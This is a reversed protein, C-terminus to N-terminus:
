FERSFQMVFQRGRPNATGIEYGVWTDSLPPETDFVNNVGFRVTTDRLLAGAEAGFRYSMHLNHMTFPKVRLYYRTIGGVDLVKISSPRGLAEYVAETTSGGTRAFEGYYSTHWGASWSGRLWTFTLNSRWKPYGNRELQSSRFGEEDEEEFRLYRSAEARLLFQGIDLHPLRYQLGIDYGELNRGGLNVYDNIMSVFDGVPARRTADTPQEANYAAFAARDEDTVPARTIKSSGKYSGTSSGLDIQDIPTGAALAEQTALDLLLEDHELIDDIGVSSIVSRQRLNWYDFTLSLGRVRPVDLVFGSVWSKATEPQLDENGQRYEVRPRNIDALEGTVTARYPDEANNVRKTPTISTEVLNPARFSENYSGRLKLWTFPNWVVSAKPTASSGHISFHEVRGALTLELHEVLPLRNERTVFPFSLETYAAYIFQDASRPANPSHAVFDDDGERLYPLNEGGPPVLPSDRDLYTEWRAEVGAAIGIPGGQFLRGLSGDVKLDWVGLETRAFREFVDYIGEVVWEPNQYIDDVVILDNEIRFTVPFPNYASADTRNLAQRLWSERMKYYEHEHTQAYSYMLGSEWRWNENLTGRLGALARIMHTDVKIVRAKTGLPRVGSIFTVDAPTGVLRPTGDENPEGTPHYFRVGFPNWPNDAPVYLGPENVNQMNEPERWATSHSGFYMIDGFLELRDTIRQNLFAAANVRDTSPVISRDEALNYYFLGESNAVEINKSPASRKFNIRDDETPYFFFTGDAAMTAVGVPPSSSTSIGRNDDPRGTDTFTLWDTEDIFGRQFQGYQTTAAGNHLDNERATAGSATTVPQGDWPAPVDGRLRLDSNRSWDRDRALLAERHFYDLALSIRTDGKTFGDSIAVRYEEAGGHQTLAMRATLKRGTEGGTIINNIVGGAADAGYIASAGDRLVEIRDVLTTPVFNANPSLSPAGNVSTSMPAPVLRRGNILLLTSGAGLGRLDPSSVDGRAGQSGTDTENLGSPLAITLTEYLDAGTSAARLEIEASDVITVPLATEAEVRRINSGTVTFPELEVTEGLEDSAVTRDAVTAQQAMLPVGPLIAIAGLALLSRRIWYFSHLNM